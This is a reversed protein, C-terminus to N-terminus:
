KVYQASYALLNAISNHGLNREALNAAANKFVTKALALPFAHLEIANTHNGGLDPVEIITSHDPARQIERGQPTDM